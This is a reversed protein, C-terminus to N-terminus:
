GQESVVPLGRRRLRATFRGEGDVLGHEGHIKSSGCSPSKEKLLARGAGSLECLREALVAGMELQSTVDRGNEDVARVEEGKQRLNISPRPVGFRALVEPCVPVIEAGATERAVADPNAKDGGDFRCRVGLLCASVAVVPRGTARLRELEARAADFDSGHLLEYRRQLDM